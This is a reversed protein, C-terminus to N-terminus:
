NKSELSFYFNISKISIEIWGSLESNYYLTDHEVVNGLHIITSHKECRM